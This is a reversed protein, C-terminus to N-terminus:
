SGAARRASHARRPIGARACFDPFPPPAHRCEITGEKKLTEEMEDQPILAVTRYVKEISCRRAGAASARLAASPSDARRPPASPTCRTTSRLTDGRPNVSVESDSQSLCSKATARPSARPPRAAPGSKCTFRPKVTYTPVLEKERLGASLAECIELATKGSAILQTPSKQLSM